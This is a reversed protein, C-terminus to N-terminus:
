VSLPSNQYHVMSIIYLVPLLISLLILLQKVTAQCNSSLQKVAAQCSSSLQKVTAQCSSSLHKVTAQCISSLHKTSAQCISPVHKVSAKHRKVSAKHQKVSAQHSAQCGATLRRVSLVFCRDLAQCFCRHVMNERIFEGGIKPGRM